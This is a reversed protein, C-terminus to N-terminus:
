QWGAWVMGGYLEIRVQVDLQAPAQNRLLLSWDAQEDPRFDYDVVSQDFGEVITQTGSAPHGHLNWDLTPTSAELHIVARDAPGGTLTAEIIDGVFLSRTETITQTPPGADPVAGGDGDDGSCAALGLAILVAARV